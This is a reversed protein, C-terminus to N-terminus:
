SLSDWGTLVKFDNFQDYTEPISLGAEVPVSDETPDTGGVPVEVLGTDLQGRRWNWTAATRRWFEAVGEGNTPAVKEAGPFFDTNPALMRGEAIIFYALAPWRNSQQRCLSAYVALQLYGSDELSKRRYRIGGWKIDVVAQEGKANTALLDIHGTLDGGVFQGAHSVEMQVDVVDAARLAEVLRVLARASTEIFDERETQRGPELLVAGDTGILEALNTRAWEKVQDSSSKLAETGVGFFREFLGHVLTGKLRNGDDVEALAGPRIRAKYGLVWQYPGYLFKELSSYSEIERKGLNEPPDIRWLRTKAPLPAMELSEVPPLVCGPITRDGARILDDIRVELWGRVGASIQDFVQHHGESSDHLVLILQDSASFIPRLWSSAEWELRTNLPLLDIGNAALQEQEM